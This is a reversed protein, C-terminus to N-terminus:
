FKCDLPVLVRGKGIHNYFTEMVSASPWGAPAFCQPHASFLDPLHSTAGDDHQYPRCTGRVVSGRVDSGTSGRGSSDSVFLYTSFETRYVSVIISYKDDLSVAM